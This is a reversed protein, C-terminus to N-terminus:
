NVRLKYRGYQKTNKFDLLFLVIIRILNKILERKSAKVPINKNEHVFLLESLLV